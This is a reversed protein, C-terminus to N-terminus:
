HTKRIGPSCLRHNLRNLSTESALRASLFHILPTNSYQSLMAGDNWWEPQENHMSLLSVRLGKEFAQGFFELLFSM